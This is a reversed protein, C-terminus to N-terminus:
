RASLDPPPPLTQLALAPTLQSQPCRALFRAFFYNLNSCERIGGYSKPNVHFVTINALKPPLAVASRLLLLVIAPRLPVM